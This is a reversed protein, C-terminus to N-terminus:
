KFIKPRRMYPVLKLIGQRRAMAFERGDKTDELYTNGQCIPNLWRFFLDRKAEFDAPRARGDKSGTNEKKEFGNFQEFKSSKIHLIKTEPNFHAIM